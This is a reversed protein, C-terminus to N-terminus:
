EKKLLRMLQWKSCCLSFLTVLCAVAISSTNSKRTHCRNFGFKEVNTCQMRRKKLLRMLQRKSSYLSFADNLLGCCHCLHQKKTYPLSQFWFKGCQKIRQQVVENTPKSFFPISLTDNIWDCWHREKKRRHSRNFLIGRELM